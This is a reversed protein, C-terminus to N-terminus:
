SDQSLVKRVRELLYTKLLGSSHCEAELYSKGRREFLFRPQVDIPTPAGDERAYLLRVPEQATLARELPRLRPSRSGVPM